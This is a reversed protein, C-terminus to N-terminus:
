GIAIRVLESILLPEDKYDRVLATLAVLNTWANASRGEHLDLMAEAGLWQAVGKLRALHPLLLAPGQRYDLDFALTPGQLTLCIDALVDQNTGVEASLGPWVNTSDTTPLVPQQWAVLAKGPGFYKMTPPSDHY